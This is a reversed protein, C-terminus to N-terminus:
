QQEIKVLAQLHIDEEIINQRKRYSDMSQLGLIRHWMLDTIVEALTRIAKVFRNFIWIFNM